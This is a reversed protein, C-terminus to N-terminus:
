IGRSITVMSDTNDMSGMISDVLVIATITIRTRRWRTSRRTGSFPSLPTQSLSLHQSSSSPSYRRATISSSNTKGIPAGRSIIFFFYNLLFLKVFACLSSPSTFFFFPSVMAKYSIPEVFGNFIEAFTRASILARGGGGGGIGMIGGKGGGVGAGGARPDRDMCREWGKCVSEMAPVRTEPECRNERYSHACAAMEALAEAIAEEAKKDVDARITAWFSWLISMFSFILFLNLLLQAYFSLIHPVNPHTEIFTFITSLISQKTSTQNNNNKHDDEDDEDDDNSNKNKNRSRSKSFKSSSVKELQRQDSRVRRNGNGNSSHSKSKSSRSAGKRPSSAFFMSSEDADEGSSEEAADLGVAAAAAAAATVTAKRRVIRKEVHRDAGAGAGGSVLPGVVSVGPGGRAAARRKSVKKEVKTSYGRPLNGERSPSGSYSGLGGLGLRGFFSSRRPPTPLEKPARVNEGGEGTHTHKGKGEDDGVVIPSDAGGVIGNGEPSSEAGEPGSSCLDPELKRPTTFASWISSSNNNNNGGNGGGNLRFYSSATLAPLPKNTNTSAATRTPSAQKSPDAHRSTPVSSFSSPTTISTGANNGTTPDSFLFHM